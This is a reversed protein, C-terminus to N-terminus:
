KLKRVESNVMEADSKTGDKAYLVGTAKRTGDEFTGIFVSGDNLFFEGKGKPTADVFDGEYRLGNAYHLVGKGTLAGAVMDGEYRNGSSFYYKGRGSAANNVFTNEIKDGSKYRYVGAGSQVGAQMEGEYKDGSAFSYVGKGDPKGAVFSGKFSDGSKAFFYEGQGVIVGDKVQGEYRDGSTWTWKGKGSQTDALWEGEYKDGNEWIYEGRGQKKNDVFDGKYRFSKAIYEGTGHLVRSKDPLEKFQGDYYEDRTFEVRGTQFTPVKPLAPAVAPPTLVPPSTNLITAPTTTVPPVAVGTAVTPAVAVPATAVSPTPVPVSPLAVKSSQPPAPTKTAPAAAPAAAPATVPAAAPAVTPAVVPALAVPPAATPVPTPAPTPAPAPVVVAAAPEAVLVAPAAAQTTSLPQASVQARQLSELQFKAASALPSAPFDKLFRQYDELRNSNKVLSWMEQAAQLDFGSPGSPLSQSRAAGTAGAAVQALQPAGGEVFFFARRGASPSSLVEPVQKGGSEQQVARSVNEFMLSSQLNPKVIERLLHKTYLGNEESAGADFAVAGPKAAFAVATGSSTRMSALGSESVKFESGFPNDRCADLIMIKNSVKADDMYELVSAAEFSKNRIEIESTINAGIPVLYNKGRNQLAHGAYFFVAARADPLLRHFEVLGGNMDDLTANLRVVVRFNLASLVEAMRRADNVANKLPDKTYNDNGIVLAVRSDDAQAFAAQPLLLLSPVTM